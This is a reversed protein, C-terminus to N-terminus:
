NSYIGFSSNKLEVIKYQGFTFSLLIGVSLKAVVGSGVVICDMITINLLKGRFGNERFYYELENNYVKAIPTVVTLGQSLKM